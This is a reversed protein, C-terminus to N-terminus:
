LGKIREEDEQNKKCDICLTTVPRAKLRKQSIEEQCSECIGYTGNEIRELADKIKVILRRERDRIRLTFNRDSELSARDSPDPMNENPDSMGSVTKSAEDLLSDLTENLLKEFSKLKKKNLM